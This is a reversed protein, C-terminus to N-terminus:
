VLEGVGQHAVLTSGLPVTMMLLQPSQSFEWSEEQGASDRVEGEQVEREPWAHTKGKLCRPM